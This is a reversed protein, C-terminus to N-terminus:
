FETEPWVCPNTYIAIEEWCIPFFITRKKKTVYKCVPWSSPALYLFHIMLMSFVRPYSGLCRQWSLTFTLRAFSPPLYPSSLHFYSWIHVSHGFLPCLIGLYPVCYAWIHYRRSTKKRKRPSLTLFANQRWLRISAISWGASSWEYKNNNNNETM